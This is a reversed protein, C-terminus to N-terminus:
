DTATIVEGDNRVALRWLNGADINVGIVKNRSRRSGSTTSGPPM